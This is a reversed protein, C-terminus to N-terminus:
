VVKFVCVISTFCFVRLIRRWVRLWRLVAASEKKMRLLRFSVAGRKKVSEGKPALLVATKLYKKSTARAELQNRVTRPPRTSDARPSLSMPEASNEAERVHDNIQHSPGPFTKPCYPRSM